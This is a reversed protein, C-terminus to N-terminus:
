ILKSKNEDGSRIIFDGNENKELIIIRESELVALTTDAGWAVGNKFGSQYNFWIAITFFALMAITQLTFIDQIINELALM